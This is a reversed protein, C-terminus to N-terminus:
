NSLCQRVTGAGAEAGGVGFGFWAPAGFQGWRRGGGNARLMAATLCQARRFYQNQRMAMDSWQWWPLVQAYGNVPDPRKGAMRTARAVASTVAAPPSSQTSDTPDQAVSAAKIHPKSTSSAMDVSCGPGRPAPTAMPAAKVMSRIKEFADNPVPQKPKIWGIETPLRENRFWYDIWKLRAKPADLTGGVSPDNMTSLTFGAEAM